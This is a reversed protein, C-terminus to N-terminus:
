LSHKKNCTNNATGLTFDHNIKRSYTFAKTHKIGSPLEPLGLSISPLKPKAEGGASVARGSVTPM